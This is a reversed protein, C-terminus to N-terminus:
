AALEAKLPALADLLPQRVKIEVGFPNPSEVDVVIDDTALYRELELVSQRTDPAATLNKIIAQLMIIARKAEADKSAAIAAGLKKLQDVVPARAAQWTALAAKGTAPAAEVPDSDTPAARPAAEASAVTPEKASEIEEPETDEPDPIDAVENGEIMVLVKDFPLPKFRKFLVRCKKPLGALPKSYLELVLTTKQDSDSHQGAVGFAVGKLKFEGNRRKAEKNLEGKLTTLLAAPDKSRHLMMRHMRSESPTAGAVFAFSLPKTKAKKLWKQLYPQYKDADGLLGSEDEVLEEAEERAEDLKKSLKDLAEVTNEYDQADFKDDKARAKIERKADSQVAKAAGAVEDIAKVCAQYDESSGSKELRELATQYAKLAEELKRGSSLGKPQNARWWGAALEPKADKKM